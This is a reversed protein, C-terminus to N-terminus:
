TRVYHDRHPPNLTKHKCNLCPVANM